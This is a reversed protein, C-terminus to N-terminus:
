EFDTLNMLNGGMSPTTTAAKAKTTTKKEVKKKPEQPTEAPSPSASSSYLVEGDKRIVININLEKEFDPVDVEFKILGM